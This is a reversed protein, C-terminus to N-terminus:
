FYLKKIPIFLLNKISPICNGWLNKQEQDQEKGSRLRRITDTVREEKYPKLIYDFVELEFAKIAFQDFVRPFFM